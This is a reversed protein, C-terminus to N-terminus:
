NEKSTSGSDQKGKGSIFPILYNPKKRQSVLSLTKKKIKVGKEQSLSSRSIWILVLLPDPQKTEGIKVPDPM